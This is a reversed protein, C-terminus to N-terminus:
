HCTECNRGAADYKCPKNHQCTTCIQNEFMRREGCVYCHRLERQPGRNPTSKKRRCATKQAPPGGGYRKVEGRYIHQRNINKRIEAEGEAKAAKILSPRIKRLPCDQRHGMVITFTDCQSCHEDSNRIGLMNAIELLQKNEMRISMMRARERFTKRSTISM